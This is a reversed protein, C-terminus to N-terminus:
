KKVTEREREAGRIIRAFGVCKSEYLFKIPGVFWGVLDVEGGWRGWGADAEFFNETCAVFVVCYFSERESQNKMPKM